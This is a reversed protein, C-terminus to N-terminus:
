QLLETGGDACIGTRNDTNPFLYLDLLADNYIFMFKM